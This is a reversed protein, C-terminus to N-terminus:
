VKKVQNSLISIDFYLTDLTNPCSFAALTVDDNEQEFGLFRLRPYLKYDTQVAFAEGKVLLELGKM